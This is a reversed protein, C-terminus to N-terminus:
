PRIPRAIFSSIASFFIVVDFCDIPLISVKYVIRHKSHINAVIVTTRDAGLMM